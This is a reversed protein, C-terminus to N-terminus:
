KWKKKHWHSMDWIWKLERGKENINKICWKGLLEVNSDCLYEIYIELNSKNCSKNIRDAEWRKGETQYLASLM